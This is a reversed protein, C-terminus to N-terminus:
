ASELNIELLVKKMKVFGNFFTIIIKCYRELFFTKAGARTHELAKKILYPTYSLKTLADPMPGSPQM